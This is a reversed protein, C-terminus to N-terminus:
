GGARKTCIPESVALTENSPVATVRFCYNHNPDLPTGNIDAVTYSTGGKLPSGVARGSGPASAEKALVILGATGGTNEKWQLTASTGSDTLRLETPKGQDVITPSTTPKAEPTKDSGGGALIIGITTILGLIVGIAGAVLLPRRWSFQEEEDDLESPRPQSNMLEHAATPYSILQGASGQTSSFEPRQMTNTVGGAGVDAGPPMYDRQYPSPPGSYNLPGSTPEFWTGVGGVGPDLGTANAEASQGALVRNESESSGLALPVHSPRSKYTQSASASKPPPASLPTETSPQASGPQTQEANQGIPTAAPAASPPPLVPLSGHGLGNPLVVPPPFPSAPHSSRNVTIASGSVPACSPIIVPPTSISPGSTPASTPQASGETNPLMAANPLVVPPSAGPSVPPASLSGRQTQAGRSTQAGQTTPMEPSVSVNGPPVSRPQWPTSMSTRAMNLRLTEAFALATPHRQTARKAMARQLETQVWEPVDDRPVRPVPQSLVRQRFAEPDQGPSAFPPRGTLLNWMTSALSYLDSQGTQHQQQLTEPSAHHPTLKYFTDTSALEDAAYAIGFDTLAPGFRSRLINPPKVDRHIIGAEHAAHLAEGIKIGVELVEETPLPGREKLIQAYSGGECYEMVIYPQGADTVGTDIISVIHPSSSLQVLTELERRVTADTTMVDDVLLVKIAVKRNLRNQTARFVIASSGHAILELGSYGMLGPIISGASLPVVANPIASTVPRPTTPPEERRLYTTTDAEASMAM